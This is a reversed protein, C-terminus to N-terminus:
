GKRNIRAVMATARNTRVRQSAVAVRNRRDLVATVQDALDIVDTVGASAVVQTTPVPVVGSAVLASAAVSSAAVGPRALPFGPVNVILAAILELDGSRPVSERWDGSVAGSARMAFVQDPTASDRLRGSYWIGIGDQGIAVDAVVAGTHDYHEAAATMGARLPAHGTGMTLAGVKTRRGDDTAVVGKTFFAYNSASVPPEQCVGKVGIHCTGWAALHGYVRGDDDVQMTTPETLEPNAFFRAPVPAPMAPHNATTAAAVLAAAVVEEAPPDEAPQDEAPQDETSTSAPWPGNEIYVSAPDDKPAFAPVRCLAASRLRGRQVLLVLDEGDMELMFPDVQEGDPTVVVAEVDDVDVSLGRLFRNEVMRRPEWGYGELDWTGTYKILNGERTVTDIRGVIVSGDHGPADSIQWGLPMPLLGDWDLSAGGFVRGDGTQSDEVLMVGHFQDDADADPGEAVVPAPDGANAEVTPAPDGAAATVGEPGMAWTQTHDGDVWLALRDFAISQVEAAAAEVDEALAPQDDDDPYGITVHPTYEPFQDVLRSGEAVPDLAMLNDRLDVLGGTGSLMWVRAGDDGLSEVGSVTETFGALDGNATASETWGDLAATINDVLDAPVDDGMFVLTAHKEEPGIGHVPDGETPLAVIVVGVREDDDPTEVEPAQETMDTDEGSAAATVATPYGADGPYHYLATCRCQIVEEPPGNEDGPQDLDYGGVNFPTDLGIVVQGDADQHTERTRGDSTALWEKAVQNMDIGLVEANYAAAGHSGANNAAVVETRAIVRARGRWREGDGLLADIRAALQPISEGVSGDPFVRTRGADLEKRIVDFVASAVGVLRNERRALYRTALRTMVSSWGAATVAPTERAERSFSGGYVGEIAPLLVDRVAARWAPSRDDLVAPDMGNAKLAAVSESLLSTLAKRAAAEVKREARVQVSLARAKDAIRTM